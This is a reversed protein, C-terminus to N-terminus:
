SRRGTIETRHGHGSWVVVAGEAVVELGLGEAGVRAGGEMGGGMAAMVVVVAGEEKRMEEEGGGVVEVGRVLRVKWARLRQWELSAQRAV